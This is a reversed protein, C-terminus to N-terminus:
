LLNFTDTYNSSINGTTHDHIDSLLTPNSPGKLVHVETEFSLNANNIFLIGAEITQHGLVSVVAEQQSNPDAVLKIIWEMDGIVKYFIQISIISDCGSSLVQEVLPHLDKSIHSM